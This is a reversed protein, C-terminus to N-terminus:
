KLGIKTSRAAALATTAPPCRQGPPRSVFIGYKRPPPQPAPFSPELVKLDQLSVTGSGGKSRGSSPKAERDVVDGAPCAIKLLLAVKDVEQDIKAIEKRVTDVKTSILKLQEDIIDSATQQQTEKVKIVTDEYETKKDKLAAVLQCRAENEKLFKRKQRNSHEIRKAVCLALWIIMSVVAFNLKGLVYLRIFSHADFIDIHKLFPYSRTLECFVDNCSWFM